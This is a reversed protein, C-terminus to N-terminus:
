VLMHEHHLDAARLCVCNVFLKMRLIWANAIELIRGFGSKDSEVFQLHAILLLSQIDLSSKGRLGRSSCSNFWCSLWVGAGSFGARKVDGSQHPGGGVTRLHPHLTPAGLLALPNHQVPHSLMLFNARTYTPAKRSPCWERHGVLAPRQLGVSHRIMGRVTWRFCYKWMLTWNLMQTVGEDCNCFVGCCALGPWGMICCTVSLPPSPQLVTCNYLSFFIKNESAYVSSLVRHVMHWSTLMAAFNVLWPGALTQALLANWILSAWHESSTKCQVGNCERQATWNCGHLTYTLGKECAQVTLRERQVSLVFNLCKLPVMELITFTIYHMLKKSFCMLPMLPGSSQPTISSATEWVARLSGAVLGCVPSLLVHCLGQWRLLYPLSRLPFLM